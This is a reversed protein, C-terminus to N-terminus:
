MGSGPLAAGVAEERGSERDWGGQLSLSLQPLSLAREPPQQSTLSRM